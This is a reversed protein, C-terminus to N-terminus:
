FRGDPPSLHRVVMVKALGISLCAVACGAILDVLYHGGDVLASAIVGVNFLAFPLWLLRTRLMAWGLLTAGAAHFSPFSVLGIFARLDIARLTGARISGLVRPVVWPMNSVMHPVDSHAVGYYPFTGLAPVLPWIALTIGLAIGWATLFIWCRGRQRTAVLLFLIIVPQWTLGSYLYEAAALVTSDLQLLRVMAFWDFGLSSDAAALWHDALPMPSASLLISGLQCLLSLLVLLGLGELLTDIRGLRYRRALMGCFMMLAAISGLKAPIPTALSFSTFAFVLIVALSGTLVIIYAPATERPILPGMEDQPIGTRLRAIITSAFQSRQV